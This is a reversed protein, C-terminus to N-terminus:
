RADRLPHATDSRLPPPRARRNPVQPTRRLRGAGAHSLRGCLFRNCMSLMCYPPQGLQRRMELPVTSSTSVPSTPGRMMIEPTTGPQGSTQAVRMGPVKGQLARLPDLAPVVLEESSLRAVAFPVKARETGEVSGTVVIEDLRNIDQKLSFNVTQSGATIRIPRVEPAYGLARVRLNLQQGSARSPPINITYDGSQNTPGSISLDNIYVQAGEIAQGFQSTVKGTIVANQAQAQEPTIVAFLAGLLAIAIMRARSLNRM